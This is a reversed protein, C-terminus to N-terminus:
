KKRFGAKGKIRVCGSWLKKVAASELAKIVLRQEKLMIKEDSPMIHDHGCLHLLGHVLLFVFERDLTQGINIANKEVQPLSIVVDGLHKKFFVAKMKRASRLKIPNQWEWQPFSLVDTTKDKGRFQSNLKKIRSDGSIDLSFEADDLGLTRLTSKCLAKIKTNSIKYRQGKYSIM